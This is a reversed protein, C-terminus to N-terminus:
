AAHEELLVVPKPTMLRRHAENFVVWAGPTDDKLMEALREIRARDYAELRWDGSGTFLRLGTHSKLEVEVVAGPFEHRLRTELVSAYRKASAETDCSVCYDFDKLNVGYAIRM